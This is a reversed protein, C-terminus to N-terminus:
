TRVTEKVETRRVERSFLVTMLGRDWSIVEGLFSRRGVSQWWFLNTTREEIIRIVQHRCTGTVNGINGGKRM